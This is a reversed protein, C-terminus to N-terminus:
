AVGVLSSLHLYKHPLIMVEVRGEGRQLKDKLVPSDLMSCASSGGQLWVRELAQFRASDFRKAQESAANTSAESAVTTQGHKAGLYDRFEEAARHHILKTMDDRLAWLHLNKAKEFRRPIVLRITWEHLGRLLEAHRALFIRFESPSAQRVLFVFVHRNGYQREVGIPLKDPFYRTTSKGGAQYVIRPLDEATAPPRGFLELKQFYGAKDKETGMWHHNKDGLVVDLLMLREIFRGLAVRRRNRSNPLRIAEYLPKHHLHYLRGSHAKGPAIVTAYGREVLKALFDVSKRGHTLGMFRCYQREMFVGSFVLVHALFDAQRETFGLQRVAEVRFPRVSQYSERLTWLNM